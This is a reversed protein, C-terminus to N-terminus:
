YNKLLKKIEKIYLMVKNDSKDLMKSKLIDRVQKFLDQQSTNFLKQNDELTQISRESIKSGAYQKVSSKLITKNAELAIEEIDNESFPKGTVSSVLRQGVFQTLKNSPVLILNSIESKPIRMEILKLAVKRKEYPSLGRGHAINLQIALKFIEKRSLGYYVIADMSDKRVKKKFYNNAEIRHKGDVLIKKGNNVAVIIPPFKAGAVMSMYYDYATNWNFMSRPYLEEDFVIENLKIKAKIKRVM